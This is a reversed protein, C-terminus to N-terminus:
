GQQTATAAKAAQAAKFQETEEYMNRMWFHNLHTDNELTYRRNRASTFKKFGAQELIQEAERQVYALEPVTAALYVSGFQTFNKFAYELSYRLCAAAEAISLQKRQSDIGLASRRYVTANCLADAPYIVQGCCTAGFSTVQPNWSVYEAESYTTPKGKGVQFVYSGTTYVKSFEEGFLGVVIEQDTMVLEAAGKAARCAANQM